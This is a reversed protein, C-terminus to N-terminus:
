RKGRGSMGRRKPYTSSDEALRNHHEWNIVSIAIPIMSMSWVALGCSLNQSEMVTLKPVGYKKIERASLTMRVSMITMRSMICLLFIRFAM